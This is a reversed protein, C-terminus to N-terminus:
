VISLEVGFDNLENGGVPRGVDFKGLALCNALPVHSDDSFLGFLILELFHETERATSSVGVHRSELEHITTPHHHHHLLVELLHLGLEHVLELFLVVVVTSTVPLVITTSVIPVLIAVTTPPLVVVIVISIPSTALIVVFLIIVMLPIHIIHLILLVELMLLVVSM